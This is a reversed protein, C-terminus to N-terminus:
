KRGKRSTRGKREVGDKGKRGKRFYLSGDGDKGRQGERGKSAMIERGLGGKGLAFVKMAMREEGDKGERAYPWVLLQDPILRPM